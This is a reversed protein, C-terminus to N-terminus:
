DFDCKSHKRYHHRRLEALEGQLAIIISEKASLTAAKAVLEAQLGTITSELAVIRQKQEEIIINKSAEVNSVAAAILQDFEAQTYIAESVNQGTASVSFDDVAKASSVEFAFGAFVESDKALGFSDATTESTNVVNQIFALGNADYENILIDYRIKSGLNTYTVRLEYWLGSKFTGQPYDRSFGPFAGGPAALSGGFINDTLAGTESSNTRFEVFVKNIGGELESVSPVLYVEGYSRGMQPALPQDALVKFFASVTISTSIKSFDFSKAKFNQRTFWNTSVSGSNDRGGDSNIFFFGEHIGNFSVSAVAANNFNAVIDASFANISGLQLLLLVVSMTLLRKM